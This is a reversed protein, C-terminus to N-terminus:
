DPVDEGWLEDVIRDRTVTRNASLLLLALLARQKGSAIPSPATGDIVELPGLLRFEVSRRRVSAPRLGSGAKDLRSGGRNTASVTPARPSGRDRAVSRAFRLCAPCRM